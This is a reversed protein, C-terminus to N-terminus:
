NPIMNGDIAVSFRAGCTIERNSPSIRSRTLCGESPMSYTSLSFSVTESICANIVPGPLNPPCRSM